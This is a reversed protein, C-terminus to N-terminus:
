TAVKLIKTFSFIDSTGISQGGSALLQSVPFSGLAPFFQPCSFPIVSSSITPVHTQTLELLCHLVPFGPTNCATWPTGFFRVRSLSSCCYLIHVFPFSLIFWVEFVAVMAKIVIRTALDLECYSILTQGSPCSVSYLLLTLLKFGVPLQLWLPPSPGQPPIGSRTLVSPADEPRRCESAPDPLPRPPPEGEEWIGASWGRHCAQASPTQLAGSM